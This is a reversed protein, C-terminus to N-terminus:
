NLIPPSQNKTKHPHQIQTQLEERQSSSLEKYEKHYMTQSHYNLEDTYTNHPHPDIIGCFLIYLTFLIIILGALLITSNRLTEIQQKKM